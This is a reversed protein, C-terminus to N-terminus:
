NDLNLTVYLKFFSKNNVKVTNYQLDPYSYLKHYVKNLCKIFGFTMKSKERRFENKRATRAVAVTPVSATLAPAPVEQAAAATQSHCPSVVNYIQQRGGTRWKSDPMTIKGHHTVSHSLLVELRFQAPVAACQQM